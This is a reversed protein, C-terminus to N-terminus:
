STALAATLCEFNYTHKFTDTPGATTPNDDQLLKFGTMNAVMVGTKYVYSAPVGTQPFDHMKTELNLNKGVPTRFSGTIKIGGTTLQDALGSGNFDDMIVNNNWNIRFEKIPYTVGDLTFPTSGGDINSIAPTTIGAFEAFTPTTLGHVTNPVTIEGVIWDTTAEVLGQSSVSIELTNMKCGLFFIYHTLMAATGLAQEYQYIFQLTEAQNGAPSSYSPPESGYKLLPLAFPWMNMSFGYSHFATQQGYLLHSGIQRTDIETGNIKPRIESVIAASTYTPSATKKTRFTTESTYQFPKLIRGSHSLPWTISSISYVGLLFLLKLLSSFYVNNPRSVKHKHNHHFSEQDLYLHFGV